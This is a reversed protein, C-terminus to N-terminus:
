VTEVFNKLVQLGNAQSKEPHFQTGFVNAFEVAAIFLEGHRCRAAVFDGGPLTARYSHTFYFDVESAMGSFLRRGPEIVVTNFGVHPIRVGAQAAADESFREVQFPLLGLGACGGDETGSTALLQMGLCIGLLPIGQAARENIAQDLGRFVINEMARRFSGVGPLIISRAGLFEEPYAVFRSKAGVAAVANAVSRLNGMGYDVIAVPVDATSM